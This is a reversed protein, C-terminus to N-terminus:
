WWQINIAMKWWFYASFQLTKNTLPDNERLYYHFKFVWLTSLLMIKIILTCNQYNKHRNFVSKTNLWGDSLFLPSTSFYCEFKLIQTGFKLIHDFRIKMHCYDTQLSLLPHFWKPLPLNHSRHKCIFISTCQLQIKIRIILTFEWCLYLKVSFINQSM